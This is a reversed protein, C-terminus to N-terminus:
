RWEGERKYAPGVMEANRLMRVIDLADLRRQRMRLRCHSRFGVGTPLQAILRVYIEAESMTLPQEMPSM